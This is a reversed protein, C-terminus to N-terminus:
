RIASRTGRNRLVVLPRDGDAYGTTRLVEVLADAPLHEAWERACAEPMVFYVPFPKKAWIALNEWELITDLPRGVHYALVHSEARFFIVPGQTSARIERAIAEYPRQIDRDFYSAYVLWGSAYGVLVIALSIAHLQKSGSACALSVTERAQAEPESSRALWWREAMAGFFIAIGPYAPLLYDARKFRMLSLFITMAGFWALGLWAAGDTRADRNRVFVHIATPAALSWPLLDIAARPGYFWWPHAALAESGGLGREVNHYWVFVEWLKNNTQINAWIFWPLAITLMLPGGWWLSTAHINWSRHGFWVVMAVVAPLVIAIPGKLLIGMALATYGLTHWCFRQANPLNGIYFAGLALTITFTLPMDIRGVRALWTFHVCTAVVLAAVYGAFPRQVRIGLYCLFLVCGLASLAAPLRVAWADVVGGQLWGILAVLWYYLPPKQLELHRDFLHPVLWHGDNLITQANQAARAEHSSTLDRDGLGVFFLVGAYMAICVCPWWRPLTLARVAPLSAATSM